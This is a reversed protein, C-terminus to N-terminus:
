VRKLEDFGIYKFSTKESTSLFMEREILKLAQGFFRSSGKNVEFRESNIDNRKKVTGYGRNWYERLTSRLASTLLALM